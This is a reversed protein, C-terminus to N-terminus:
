RAALQARILETYAAAGEPRLHLGDAYFWGPHSDSASFWDIVRANPFEAAIKKITDINPAQWERPVRPTLLIIMRRDALSALTRRLDDPSIVGNDGTHIIVNAAVSGATRRAALDTFVARAQRGEVASIQILPMAATLAPAAGLMVSDGFASVAMGVVSVPPPPAPVLAPPPTPTPAPTPTPTPETTPSARVRSSVVPGAVKPLGSGITDIATQTPFPRQGRSEARAPHQNTQAVSIASVLLAASIGWGAIRRGASPASRQRIGSARRGIEVGSWWRGVAGSRFPQEVFRYSIAALVTTIAVQNAILLWRPGTIDLGPRTVVVVPWHWLYMAYSRQGIWRLPALDLLRSLLSMQGAVAAVLIAALLSIVAFGGRYLSPDFETIHHTEWLLLVLAGFAIASRLGRRVTEVTRVIWRPGRRRVRDETGLQNWLSLAGLAAGFLLGSAHTDSGFYVRASDAGYPVDSRVALVAMWVASASGAVFGFAAVRLLTSRRIFVPASPSRRLVRATVVLALLIPWLLYFQEEIALSWLHQVMPPRGVAVFYSQHDYILWWNTAFGAAALVGGRLTALEDRWIFVAALTIAVLLALVAPVLRRWRRRYFGIVDLHGTRHIELLLLRTILYGSIAFFLDVGLFGGPLLDPAFHFAMVALVALARLGDLGPLWGPRRDPKPVSVPSTARGGTRTHTRRYASM